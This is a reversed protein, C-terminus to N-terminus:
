KSMTNNGKRVRELVLRDTGDLPLGTITPQVLRQIINYYLFIWPCEEVIVQEMSRYADYRQQPTLLPSLASEYLSDVDSRQVHTTNPGNPSRHASYFLALFNEPDPYDGVWSTRWLHLKASRVMDLHQPFDVQKLEMNVGIEKWMQQVAEGVSATRQSNGMQLVFDPLGKGNPYGAEALLRRAKDPNYEYGKVGASFGPMSPPLVGYYAPIGKGNLVYRIIRERDIAYNLAKRLAPSTALPTAKAADCSTDLLIGYYEVSHAATQQLVFGSFESRLTGQPTLVVSAFSPDIQSVFDLKGRRFELFETKTDRVFSVHVYELYPLQRGQSDHKFYQLNRRLVLEVDPKWKVFTFPGTGVPHFGFNEGYREVAERPVIWCYPMTLLSLFPAFPKVLTLQLTSDDLVQIGKCGGPYKGGKTATYFEEGGLLRKRFVWLGTSKTRADLIREFSFRVDQASMRRTKSEGFCSDEHFFVDTRLRFTWVTGTEDVQWSRALSPVVNLTSDYEVLANYLQTGAWGAAQYGAIAPDLSQIGNPENYSFTVLPNLEPEHSCSGFGIIFCIGILLRFFATIVMTCITLSGKTKQFLFGKIYASPTTHLFCSYAKESVKGETFRRLLCFFDWRGLVKKTFEGENLIGESCASLLVDPM